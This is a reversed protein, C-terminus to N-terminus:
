YPPILYLGLEPSRAVRPLQLNWHGNALVHTVNWNRRIERWRDLTFGEWARRNTEVPVRGTYRAEAPPNFLDVGYVDRLIRDMAPAASLTYPLTDLTGGDILIPRRTRLQVLWLDGGVLMRGSGSAARRLLGDNPHSGFLDAQRQPDRMLVYAIAGTMLAAAVLSAAAARSRPTRTDEGATPRLVLATGLGITLPIWILVGVNLIRGPMAVIITSPLSAMPAQVVLAGALGGVAVLGFALVMARAEPTLSGPRARSVVATMAAVLVNLYVATSTLDVRQRHFDWFTVFARLYRDADPPAEYAPWLARHAAFSAMTVGLGAALWRWVMPTAEPTTRRHWWIAALAAVAVATGMSAHVAPLLGLAFAAARAWGAGWLGLPLVAATLAFAGFTHATPLVSIPYVLGNTAFGTWFLVLASALAVLTRRCLVFAVLSLGLMALGSEAGSLIHSLAAESTGAALGIATLQEVITWLSAAVHAQVDHADYRVIGASIQAIEVAWQWDARALGIGAGITVALVALTSPRDLATSHLLVM